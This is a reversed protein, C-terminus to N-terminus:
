RNKKKETREISKKVGKEQGEMGQQVLRKERIEVTNDEKQTEYYCGKGKRKNGEMHRRNRAIYM